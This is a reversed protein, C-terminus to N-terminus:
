IEVHIIFKIFIFEYSFDPFVKFLESEFFLSTVIKFM